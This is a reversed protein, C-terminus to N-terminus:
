FRGRHSHRLSVDAAGGQHQCSGQGNINKCKGDGHELHGRSIPMIAFSFIQLHTIQDGAFRFAKKITVRAQM